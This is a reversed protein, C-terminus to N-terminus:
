DRTQNHSDHKNRQTTSEESTENTKTTHSEKEFRPLFSRTKTSNQTNQNSGNILSNITRTSENTSEMEKITDILCQTAVHVLDDIKFHMEFVEIICVFNISKINLTEVCLKLKWASVRKHM